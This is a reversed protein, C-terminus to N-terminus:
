SLGQLHQCLKADGRKANVTATCSVRGAGSTQGASTEQVKTPPVMSIHIHGEDVKASALKSAQSSSLHVHQVPESILLIFLNFMNLAPCSSLNLLNVGQVVQCM